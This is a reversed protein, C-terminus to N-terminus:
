IKKRMGWSKVGDDEQSKEKNVVTPKSQMIMHSLMHHQMCTLRNEAQMLVLLLRSFAECYWGRQHTAACLLFQILHAHDLKLGKIEGELQYLTYQTIM